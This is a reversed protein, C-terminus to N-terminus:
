EVGEGRRSSVLESWGFATKTISMKLASLNAYARRGIARRVGKKIAYLLRGSRKNAHPLPGAPPELGLFRGLEEWGDGEEWCVVLLREPKDGFYKEVTENHKEYFRIHAEKQGHPMAYGYIRLRQVSPGTREAHSCLSDFWADSTVRKTLIFKSGPFAEDIERYILAWPWDDCSDYKHLIDILRDIRGDFFLQVASRDNSIHRFGWHRM